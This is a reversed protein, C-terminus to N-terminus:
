LQRAKIKEMLETFNSPYYSTFFKKFNTDEANNSNIAWIVREFYCQEIDKEENNVETVQFILIVDKDYSDYNIFTKSAYKWLYKGGNDSKNSWDGISEIKENYEEIMNFIWVVKKGLSNYFWTREDFEKSTIPSNQFEIVYGYCLVDARRETKEFKRRISNDIKLPVERNKIPFKKQWYRHWESMNEHYDNCECKNKHAFHNIRVNGKKIILEGKCSRCYYKNNANKVAFDIDILNENIDLASFM